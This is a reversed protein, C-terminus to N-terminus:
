SFDKKNIPFLLETSFETKSSRSFISDIMEEYSKNEFVVQYVASIIPADIHNKEIIQYLAACTEVGEAYWTIPEKRALSEGYQRNKSHKSFLTAEYDGLHSLGYATIFDGGMARIIKGVEYCSRAMLAGKLQYLELGDFYGAAIGIVNKAAAGIENGIIDTGEYVRILSSNMKQQLEERYIPDPSDVVMCTPVHRVMEEVHGPGVFIGVRAESIEEQFVETLRKGSEKEIGKMALVFSKGQLNTRDMNRCLSRLDQSHISIFVMEAEKIANAQDCSLTVNEPLELYGNKRTEKLELYSENEENPGLLIVEQKLIEAHYWALFTGWRGCGIVAIM